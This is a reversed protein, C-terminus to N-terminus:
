IFRRRYMFAGGLGAGLLLLTAPEPVPNPNSNVFTAFGGGYGYGAKFSSVSLLETDTVFVEGARNSGIVMGASNVDIDYLQGDIGFDRMNMSALINGALDIRTLDGDWDAVLLDGGLTVAISRHETWGFIGTLDISELLSFSFPDYVNIARGGPSGGPSLTYLRGDFGMTLDIPEINTAFRTSTGTQSDFRVVGNATDATNGYTTMDTVFTYSGLTAIGGYTGNNVTSWGSTTRHDWQNTIANYSSLSPEFTGNFVQVNNDQDVVLDRATDSSTAGPGKPIAISQVMQGTTTYETLMGNRSVLINEQGFPAAMVDSLILLAGLLALIFPKCRFRM